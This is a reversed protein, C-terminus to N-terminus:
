SAEELREVALTTGQMCFSMEAVTGVVRIRDGPEFSGVDGALTYLKGDDARLAPCEVGEETLIGTVTVTSGGAADGAGVGSAAPHAGLGSPSTQPAIPTSREGSPEAAAGACAALVAAVLALCAFPRCPEHFIPIEM